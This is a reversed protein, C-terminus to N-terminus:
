QKPLIVTDIVHVVGNRALVANPGIIGIERGNPDTITTGSVALKEGNIMTLQKANVVSVATRRGPMVHTALVSNLLETNELVTDADTGLEGLLAVFADDTPAFVTRQGRASLTNLFVPDAEQLAAILISFEGTEENIALVTDAITGQHRPGGMALATSVLLLAMTTYIIAHKM